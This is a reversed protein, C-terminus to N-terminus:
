DEIKNDCEEWEFAEICCQLIFMGFAGIIVGKAFGSWTTFSIAWGLGACLILTITLSYIYKKMIM